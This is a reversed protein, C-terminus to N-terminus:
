SVRQLTEVWRGYKRGLVEALGDGGCLVSLALVGLPSNRWFLVQRLPVSLRKCARSYEGREHKEDAPALRDCHGAQWCMRRSYKGPPWGSTCEGKSRFKDVNSRQFHVSWQTRVAHTKGHVFSTLLRM